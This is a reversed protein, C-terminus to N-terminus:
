QLVLFPSRNCNTASLRRNSFRKLFNSRLIFCVQHTYRFQQRQINNSISSSPHSVFFFLSNMIEFFRWQIMRVSMNVVGNLNMWRCRLLCYMCCYFGCFSGISSQLQKKNFSWRFCHKNMSINIRHDESRTLPNVMYSNENVYTAIWHRGPNM